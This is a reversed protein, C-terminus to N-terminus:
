REQELDGRPNMKREKDWIDERKSSGHGGYLIWAGFDGFEMHEGKKGM